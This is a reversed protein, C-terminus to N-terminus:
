EDDKRKKMLCKLETLLSARLSAAGTLITPGRVPPPPGAAPAAPVGLPPPPPAAPPAMPVGITSIKIPPQATGKKPPAPRNKILDDISPGKGTDIKGWRFFRHGAHKSLCAYSSCLDDECKACFYLYEGDDLRKGCSNCILDTKYVRIEGEIPVQIEFIKETGVQIM